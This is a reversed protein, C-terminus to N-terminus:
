KEGKKEDGKGEDAPSFDLSVSNICYRQGTPQPGDPFVHGLHGGCKSCHVETRVAFLSTDEESDINEQEYPQYFSPWGTGSDFKHDSHFLPAGCGACIYTGKKHNDWLDGTFARETGKERLVYYEQDSLEERWEDESKDNKDGMDKQETEEKVSTDAKEQSEAVKPEEPAEVAGCAALTLLVMPAVWYLVNMMTKSRKFGIGWSSNDYKENLL